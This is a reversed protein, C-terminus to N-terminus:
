SKYDKCTDSSLCGNNSITWKLYNDNIALGYAKNGVFNASGSVVSWEGTGISPTNPFLIISDACTTQDVGADAKTPQDNIIIVEDSSLVSVM